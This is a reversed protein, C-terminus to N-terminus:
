WGVGVDVIEDLKAIDEPLELVRVAVAVAVIVVLRRVCRDTRGYGARAAMRAAAQTSSGVASDVVALRGVRLLFVLFLSPDSRRASDLLEDCRTLLKAISEFLHTRKRGGGM